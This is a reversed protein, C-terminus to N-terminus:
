SCPPRSPHRRSRRRHDGGSVHQAAASETTEFLSAQAAAQEIKRAAAQAQPDDTLDPVPDSRSIAQELKAEQVVFTLLDYEEVVAWAQRREALALGNTEDGALGALRQMHPRLTVVIGSVAALVRDRPDRGTM